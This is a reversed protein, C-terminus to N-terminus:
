DNMAAMMTNVFEPEYITLNTRDIEAMSNEGDAGCDWYVVAMDFSHALKVFYDIWELRVRLDIKKRNAGTEGVVVPVKKGVVYKEYLATFNRTLESKKDDDFTTETNDAGSGLCYNHVTLILKDQASDNPLTFLEHLATEDGTCLSPIMVFRNANNGGTKRIADICVQNYENLIKYDALCEACNRNDCWAKKNEYDYYCILGPQWEHDHSSNRPENLTEFILHEDYSGNFAQGIQTWIAKLFRKSEAIDTKNNRVIYGDSYGLPSNMDDYVSHHENLIVYYGANYAWDVVTKVRAMWDPDITYNDDIIHNYWTVPIRITTYGKSKPFTIIEETNYPHGWIIETDLGLEGRWSLPPKWNSAQPELSNGLNWGIKMNKVLDLASVSTNFSGSTKDKIPTIIRNQTFYLKNIKVSLLDSFSQFFIMKVSAKGTQDLPLYLKNRYKEARVKTNEIASDAYVVQLNFSDEYNEFELVLYDFNSADYSGLWLQGASYKKTVNLINSSSDFSDTEKDWVTIKSLDLQEDPLAPRTKKASVSLAFCNVTLFSYLVVSTFFLKHNFAFRKM